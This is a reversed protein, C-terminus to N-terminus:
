SFCNESTVPSNTNSLLLGLWAVYDNKRNTHSTYIDTERLMMTIQNMSSSRSKVHANGNSAGPWGMVWPIEIFIRPILMWMQHSSSCWISQGKCRKPLWWL